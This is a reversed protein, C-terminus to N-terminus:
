HFRCAGSPFHMCPSSFWPWKDRKRSTVFSFILLPYFCFRHPWGQNSLQQQARGSAGLSFWHVKVGASPLFLLNPSSFSSLVAAIWISTTLWPLIWSVLCLCAFHPHTWFLCELPVVSTLTQVGLLSHSKTKFIVREGHQCYCTSGSFVNIQLYRYVDSMEYFSYLGRIIWCSLSVDASSPIQGQM